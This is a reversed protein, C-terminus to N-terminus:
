GCRAARRGARDLDVARERFEDESQGAGADFATAAVTAVREM